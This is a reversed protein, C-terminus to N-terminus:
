CLIIYWSDLDISVYSGKKGGITRANLLECAKKADKKSTFEVWGDVFSRKKNGGNRVRKSHSSPDEPTLFIRNITGHPELLSRLKHPKMFPPIRSLYVVGSKKIALDTAILNKKSLSKIAPPLTIRSDGAESEVKKSSKASKSADSITENQEKTEIEAEEDDSINSEEDSDVKRRKMSRAGKRLDEEESNYGQSQNEDDSDGTELFENHKRTAM